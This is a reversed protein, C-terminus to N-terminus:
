RCYAPLGSLRHQACGGADRLALVLSRSSLCRRMALLHRYRRQAFRSLPRQPRTQVTQREPEASIQGHDAGAQSPLRSDDTSM